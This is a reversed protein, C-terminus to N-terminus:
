VKFGFGIMQLKWTKILGGQGGKECASIAGNYTVVKLSVQSRM